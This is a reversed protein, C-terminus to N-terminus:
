NTKNPKYDYSGFSTIHKSVLQHVNFTTDKVQKSVRSILQRYTLCGNNFLEIAYKAKVLNENEWYYKVQPFYKSQVDIAVKNFFNESIHIQAKM